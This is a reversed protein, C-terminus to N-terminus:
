AARKYKGSGIKRAKKATVWRNIAPYVQDRGKSRAGPNKMVDDITFTSPLSALIKNWDVRGRATPKRGPVTKKGNSGPRRKATKKKSSAPRGKATKKKSSASRRKATKRTSRGATARKKARKRPLGLAAPAFSSTLADRWLRAQELLKELEAERKRIETTLVRLTREAQERVQTLFDKSPRAM